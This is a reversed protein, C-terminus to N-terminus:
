SIVWGGDVNLTHGTVYAAAPSSLFVVPGGLDEPEGIRGLPIHREVVADTTRRDPLLEATMATRMYGPAVTNVRINDAAWEYAQNKTMQIVAAKTMDYASSREGDVVQGGISAVNVIAGGGRERMLRAARQAVFYAARVNVDILADFAPPPFEYAPGRETVAANNVLVDLRGHREAIGEVAAGVAARDTVDLAVGEATGGAGGIAEAVARAAAGHLDAVVVTAGAASLAHCAAEGLGRGGGTVLALRGTLGFPERM